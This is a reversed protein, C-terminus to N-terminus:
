LAKEINCISFLDSLRKGISDYSYKEKAVKRANHGLNRIKASDRSVQRVISVYEEPTSAFIVSEYNVLEIGECAEQNAIIPMAMAM